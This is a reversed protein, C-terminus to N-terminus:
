LAVALSESASDILRRLRQALIDHKRSINPHDLYLNISKEHNLLCASFIGTEASFRPPIIWETCHSTATCGSCFPVDYRPVTRKFHFETGGLWVILNHSGHDFVKEDIHDAHNKMENLFATYHDIGTAKFQPRHQNNHPKLINIRKAFPYVKKGIAVMAEVSDNVSKLLLTNIVLEVGEHESIMEICSTVKNVDPYSTVHKFVTKDVTDLSVNFRTVGSACLFAIDSKGLLSGNTTVITRSFIKQIIELLDRWDPRVLFEGGTINATNLGAKAMTTAASRFRDLDIWEPSERVDSRQGENHCYFCNM